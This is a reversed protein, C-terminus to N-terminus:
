PRAPHFRACTFELWKRAFAAGSYFYYAWHWPIAGLAFLVGRKEAFFLYADANLLLLALACGSVAAWAWPSFRTAALALPLLWILAVSWRSGTRLNLDDPLPRNRLALESWPLARGCFDARLLSRFTWRKFHKGQLTRLLRIRYGAARLRYGLEIDEISAHPYKAADFGGVKEFAERRVAGCGAWFTAAEEKGTQHVYHHLLNKYQSLFNGEAPQDDYSGFVAAVEPSQQFTERVLRVADPRIGVDADVFFLIDGHTVRAGANRAAAPGAPHPQAIVRAGFQEAVRRSDDTSGDDVVVIEDARPQASQVRGLCRRL